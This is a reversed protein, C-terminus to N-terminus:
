CCSCNNLATNSFFFLFNVTGLVMVVCVVNVHQQTTTAFLINARRITQKGEGRLLSRCYFYFFPVVPENLCYCLCDGNGRLLRRYCDLPEMM